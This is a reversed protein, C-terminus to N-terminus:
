GLELELGIVRVRVRVRMRRNEDFENKLDTEVVDLSSPYDGV